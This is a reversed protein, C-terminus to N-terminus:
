NITSFNLQHMNPIITEMRKNGTLLIRYGDAIPWYKGGVFLNRHIMNIRTKARIIEETHRELKISNARAQKLLKDAVKPLINTYLRSPSQIETNSKPLLEYHNRLKHPLKKLKIMYVPKPSKSSIKIKPIANSNKLTQKPQIEYSNNIVPSKNEIPLLNIKIDNNENQAKTTMSNGVIDIFNKNESRMQKRKFAKSIYSALVSQNTAKSMTVPIIHTAPILNNKPSTIITEGLKTPLRLSNGTFPPKNVSISKSVERRKEVTHFATIKNRQSNKIRVSFECKQYSNKNLINNMESDDTGLCIDHRPENEVLMNKNNTITSFNKIHHVHNEITKNM